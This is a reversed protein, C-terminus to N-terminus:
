DDPYCAPRTVANWYDLQCDTYTCGSLHSCVAWEGDRWELYEDTCIEVLREQEEVCEAFTGGTFEEDFCDHLQECSYVADYEWTTPAVPCGSLFLVYAFLIWFKETRM